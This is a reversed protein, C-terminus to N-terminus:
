FLFLLVLGVLVALSSVALLTEGTVPSARKTAEAFAYSIKRKKM